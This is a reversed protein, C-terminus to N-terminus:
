LRLGGLLGLGLALRLRLCLCLCLCLRLSLGLRMGHRLHLGPHHHLRLPAGLNRPL